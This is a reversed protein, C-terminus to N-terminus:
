YISLLHLSLYSLPNKFVKKVTTLSLAFLVFLDLALIVGSLQLKTYLLVEQLPTNEAMLGTNYTGMSWIIFALMILVFIQNTRERPNKTLVYIGLLTYLFITFLSIIVSVITDFM